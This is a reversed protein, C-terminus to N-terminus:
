RPMSTSSFFAATSASKRPRNNLSRSDAAAAMSSSSSAASLAISLAMGRSCSSFITACVTTGTSCRRTNRPRNAAGISATRPTATAPHEGLVDGAPERGAGAPTRGSNGLVFAGDAVGGAEASGGGEGLEWPMRGSGQAKDGHRGIQRQNIEVHKEQAIPLLSLTFPMNGKAAKVKGGSQFLGTKFNIKPIVLKSLSVVRELHFREQRKYGVRCPHNPKRAHRVQQRERQQGGPRELLAIGVSRDNHAADTGLGHFVLQQPAKGPYIDDRAPFALHGTGLQHACQVAPVQGPDPSNAVALITRDRMIRVPRA